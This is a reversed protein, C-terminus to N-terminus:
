KGRREDIRRDTEIDRLCEDCKRSKNETSCDCWRCRYREPEVYLTERHDAENELLIEDWLNM